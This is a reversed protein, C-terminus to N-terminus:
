ASHDSRRRAPPIFQRAASGRPVAFEFAPFLAERHWIVQEAGLRICKELRLRMHQRFGTSRKRNGIALAAITHPERLATKVHKRDVPRRGRKALRLRKSPPSPDSQSSDLRVHDSPMPWHLLEIHNRRDENLKQRGVLPPM